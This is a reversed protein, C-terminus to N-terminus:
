PLQNRTPADPGLRFHEQYLRQVQTRLHEKGEPENDVIAIPIGREQLHKILAEQDDYLYHKEMMARNLWHDDGGTNSSPLHRAVNRKWCTEFSVELYIVLSADLIRRDFSQLAPVNNSRAFEVVVLHNPQDIALLDTSVEELIRDLLRNDAVEYDGDGTTLSWTRAKGKAQLADDAM